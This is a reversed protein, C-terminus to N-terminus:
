RKKIINIAVQNQSVTVSHNKLFGLVCESGSEFGFELQICRKYLELDKETM